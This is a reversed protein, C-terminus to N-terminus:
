SGQKTRLYYIFDCNVPKAGLQRLMAIVQGRHYTTHNVLHQLVNSMPYSFTRGKSDTHSFPNQVSADTLTALFTSMETQWAQWLGQLEPLGPIEQETTMVPSPKGKLRDLWLRGAAIAHCLTGHVSGHSTALNKKYQDPSIASVVALTREMAWRDFDFLTILEQKTM